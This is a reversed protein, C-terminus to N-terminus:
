NLLKDLADELEEVLDELDEREAKLRALDDTDDASLAAILAANQDLKFRAEELAQRAALVEPDPAICDAPPDGIERSEIETTTGPRPKRYMSPPDRTIELVVLTLPVADRDLKNGGPLTIKFDEELSYAIGTQGGKSFIAKMERSILVDDKADVIRMEFHDSANETTFDQAPIAPIEDYQTTRIDIPVSVTFNPNSRANCSDSFSVSGIKKIEIANAGSVGFAVSGALLSAGLLWNQRGM